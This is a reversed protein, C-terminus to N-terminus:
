IFWYKYKQLFSEIVSKTFPLEGRESKMTLSLMFSVNGKKAKNVLYM